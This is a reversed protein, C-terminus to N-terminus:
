MATPETFFSTCPFIFRATPSVMLFSSPLPFVMSLRDWSLIAQMLVLAQSPAESSSSYNYASLLKSGGEALREQVPVSPSLHFSFTTKNM